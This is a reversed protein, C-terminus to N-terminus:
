APVGSATTASWGITGAVHTGHGNDDIPDGDNNVFDYGHVDDVYGNGDDDVGNGRSEGPNTWINAALDPPQLGRRHRDRSSWRRAESGTTSDVREPADIDRGRDTSVTQGTNNLGWLQGFLPREFPHRRSLRRGARRLARATGAFSRWPEAGTPPRCPPWSPAFGVFADTPPRM